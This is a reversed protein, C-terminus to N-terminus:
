PELPGSQSHAGGTLVPEHDPGSERGKPPTTGECEGHARPQLPGGTLLPEHDPASERGKPPAAGECEGHARTERGGVENALGTLAAAM